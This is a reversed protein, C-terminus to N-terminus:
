HTHTTNSYKTEDDDRRPGDEGVINKIKVITTTTDVTLDYMKVITADFIADRRDCGVLLLSIAILILLSKFMIVGIKQLSHQM